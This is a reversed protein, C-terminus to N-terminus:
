FGTSISAIEFRAGGDESECVDITWGHAEVIQEVISLGFGTGDTATTHGPEFIDARECDPIGQDSDAVYFGDDTTGVTITVTEGGHEIANRVLNEFLQQLRNEDAEIVRDEEVVLTAEATEVTRWCQEVVQEVGLPETSITM